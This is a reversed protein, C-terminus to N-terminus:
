LMFGLLQLLFELLEISHIMFLTGCLELILSTIISLTLNVELIAHIWRM